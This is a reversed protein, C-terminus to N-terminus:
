NDDDNPLDYQDKLVDLAGSRKGASYGATYSIFWVFLTYGGGIAFDMLTFM